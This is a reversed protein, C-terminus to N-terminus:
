RVPWGTFTQTGTSITVRGDHHDRVLTGQATITGAIVITRFMDKERQMFGVQQHYIDGLKTAKQLCQNVDFM